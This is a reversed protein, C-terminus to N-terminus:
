WYGQERGENYYGAEQLQRVKDLTGEPLDYTWVWIDSNPARVFYARGVCDEAEPDRDIVGYPDLMSVSQFMMEATAPDILKAADRVEQEFKRYEESDYKM